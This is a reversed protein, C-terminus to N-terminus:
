SYFVFLSLLHRIPGVVQEIAVIVLWGGIGVLRSDSDAPPDVVVRSHPAIAIASETKGSSPLPPPREVQSFLKDIEKVARWSEFGSRWALVDGPRSLRSLVKMLDTKNIPGVSKEGDAYHWSQDM